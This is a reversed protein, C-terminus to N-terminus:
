ELISWAFNTSSLRYFIQLIHDAIGDFKKFATKWLNTWEQTGQGLHYYILYWLFDKLTMKQYFCADSLLLKPNKIHLLYVLWCLIMKKLALHIVM